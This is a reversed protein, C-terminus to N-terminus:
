GLQTKLLSNVQVTCLHSTASPFPSKTGQQKCPPTFLSVLHMETCNPMLGASFQLFLLAGQSQLSDMADTIVPRAKSACKKKKKKKLVETTDSQRRVAARNESLRKSKLRKCTLLLWRAKM